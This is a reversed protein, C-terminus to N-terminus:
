ANYVVRFERGNTDIIEYTNGYRTYTDIVLMLGPSPDELHDNQGKDYMIALSKHPEPKHYSYGRMESSGTRTTIVKGDVTSITLKFVKYKGM